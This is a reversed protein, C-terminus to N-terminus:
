LSSQGFRSAKQQVFQDNWLSAESIPHSILAIGDIFVLVGAIRRFEFLTSAKIECTLCFLLFM